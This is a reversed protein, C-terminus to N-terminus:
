IDKIIVKTIYGEEDYAFSCEYEKFSDADFKRKLSILEDETAYNKGRFEVIIAYGINTKNNAIVKDLDFTLLFGNRTGQMGKIKSNISDPSIKIIVKNVYGDEDYELACVYETHRDLKTKLTTIDDETNYNNEGYVITIIRNENIKNKEAIYDLDDELSFGYQKNQMDKIKENFSSASVEIKNISIKNVANGFSDAYSLSVNYVEMNTDSIKDKIELLEPETVASMGNYVVTIKVYGDLKNNTIIKDFYSRIEYGSNIGELYSFTYKNQSFGFGNEFFGGFFGKKGDNERQMGIRIALAIISALLIIILLCLLWKRGKQSNSKNKENNDIDISENALDEVSVKFVQSIEKLKEIDPKSQGLEWKSVTQRTVNLKEALEEQSLLSKKRLKILKEEFKM